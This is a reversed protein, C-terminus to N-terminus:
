LALCPVSRNKGHVKLYAEAVVPPSFAKRLACRITFISLTNDESASEADVTMMSEKMCGDNHNMVVVNVVSDESLEYTPVGNIEWDIIFDSGIGKCWFTHNNGQLISANSPSEVFSPDLLLVM